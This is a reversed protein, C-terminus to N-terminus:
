DEPDPYYPEGTLYTTAVRLYRDKGGRIMAKDEDSLPRVAKAPSGLVLSGPPIVTGPVVVAGAGVLSERGIVAKDLIIAGMGILCDDEVTCDHLIAGHGVTIGNGLHTGQGNHTVHIVSNDQINTAVGITIPNIDGRLVAGFWVSANAALTVQGIVRATDAVFATEDIQPRHGNFELINM